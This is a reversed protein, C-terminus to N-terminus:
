RVTKNSFLIMSQLVGHRIGRDRCRSLSFIIRLWSTMSKAVINTWSLSTLHQISKNLPYRQDGIAKKAEIHMSIMALAEASHFNIWEDQIINYRQVANRVSAPIPITKRSKESSRSTVTNRNSPTWVTRLICISHPLRLASAKVYWNQTRTRVTPILNWKWSAHHFGADPPYKKSAVPSFKQPIQPTFCM